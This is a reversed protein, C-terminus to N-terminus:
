KVGMVKALKNIDKVLVAEYDGAKSKLRKTFEKIAEKRAEEKIDLIRFATECAVDIEITRKYDKKSIIISDKPVERYGANYLAIFNNFFGEKIAFETCKMTIQKGLAIQAMKHIEKVEIQKDM